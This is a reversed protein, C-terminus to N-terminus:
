CLILYRVRTMSSLIFNVDLSGDLVVSAKSAIGKLVKHSHERKIHCARLPTSGTFSIGTCKGLCRTKLYVDLPLLNANMQEVFRNYSVLHPFEKTM